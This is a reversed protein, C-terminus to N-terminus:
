SASPKKFIAYGEVAFGLLVLIPALTIRRFSFLAEKDFVNPDPHKGGAMLMFGVLILVLGVGMLMYNEKHFLMGMSSANSKESTSITAKVESTVEEVEQKTEKLRQKLNKKKAM